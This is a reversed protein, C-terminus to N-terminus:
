NKKYYFCQDEQDILDFKNLDVDLKKLKHYDSVNFNILILNKKSESKKLNPFLGYIEPLSKYNIIYIEDNLKLYKEFIKNVYGYGYSNCYGYVRLLRDNHDRKYIKYINSFFFNQHALFLIIILLLINKQHKYKSNIM